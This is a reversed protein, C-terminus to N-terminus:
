VSARFCGSGVIQGTVFFDCQCSLTWSFLGNHEELLVQPRSTQMEAQREGALSLWARKKEVNHTNETTSSM